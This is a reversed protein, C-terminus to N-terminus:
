EKKPKHPTNTTSAIWTWWKMHGKNPVFKTSKAIRNDCNIDDEVKPWIIQNFHHKRQNHKNDPYYHYGLEDRVHLVACGDTSNEVLIERVKKCVAQTQQNRARRERIRRVIKSLITTGVVCCISQKPYYYFTTSIIKKLLILPIDWLIFILLQICLLYMYCSWTIPLEKQVYEMSLGIMWGDKPVKEMTMNYMPLISEDLCEMTSDEEDNNNTTSWVFDKISRYVITNASRQQQGYYSCYHQQTTEEMQQKVRHWIQQCENSLNCSSKDHNLVFISSSATDCSILKNGECFGFKPCPLCDKTSQEDSEADSITNQFCLIQPINNNTTTTTDTTLNANKNNTDYNPTWFPASIDLIIFVLTIYAIFTILFSLVFWLQKLRKIIKDSFSLTYDEKKPTIFPQPPAYQQFHVQNSSPYSEPIISGNNQTPTTYTVTNPDLASNIFNSSLTSVPHQQNQHGNNSYPPSVTAAAAAAAATHQLISSAVQSSPVFTVRTGLSSSNSSSLSPEHTATSKRTTSSVSSPLKSTRSYSQRKTQHIIPPSKQEKQHQSWAAALKRANALKEKKTWKPTKTPLQPQQQQISPPSSPPPPKPPTSIITEKKPSSKKKKTQKMKKPSSRDKTSTSTSTSTPNKKPTKQEKSWKEVRARVMARREELTLKGKKKKPEVVEEEENKMKRKRTPAM